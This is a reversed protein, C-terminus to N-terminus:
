LAKARLDRSILAPAVLGVVVALLVAQNMGGFSEARSEAEGGLGFRTGPAWTMAQLAREVAATAAVRGGGFSAPRALHGWAAPGGGGLVTAKEV